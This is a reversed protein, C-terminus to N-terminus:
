PVAPSSHITDAPSAALKILAARDTKGIRNYPSQKLWDGFDQDASHCRRAALLGSGDPHDPRPRPEPTRHTCQSMKEPWKRNISAPAPFLM